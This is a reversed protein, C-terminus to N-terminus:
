ADTAVKERMAGLFGVRFAAREADSYHKLVEAVLYGFVEPTYSYRVIAPQAQVAGAFSAGENTAAALMMRIDPQVVPLLRNSNM